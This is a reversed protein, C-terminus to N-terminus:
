WSRDVDREKMRRKNEKKVERGTLSEELWANERENESNKRGSKRPMM